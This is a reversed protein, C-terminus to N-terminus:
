LDFLLVFLYILSGIFLLIGLLFLSFSLLNFIRKFKLQSLVGGIAIFSVSLILALISAISTTFWVRASFDGLALSEIFKTAGQVFFTNGLILLLVANLQTESFKEYFKDEDVRNKPKTIETLAKKPVSDKM